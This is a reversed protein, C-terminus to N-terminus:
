SSKLQNIQKIVATDWWTKEFEENKHGITKCSHGVWTACRRQVEAGAVVMHITQAMEDPVTCVVVRHVVSAAGTEVECRLLTKALADMHM